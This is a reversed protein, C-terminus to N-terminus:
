AEKWAKKFWGWFRESPVDTALLYAEQIQEDTFGSGRMM